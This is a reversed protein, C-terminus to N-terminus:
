VHNFMNDILFLEKTVNSKKILKKHSYYWEAVYFWNDLILCVECNKEGLEVVIADKGKSLVYVNKLM